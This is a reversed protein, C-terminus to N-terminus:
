FEDLLNRSLVIIHCSQCFLRLLSSEVGIDNLKCQAILLNVWFMFLSPSIEIKLRLRETNASRKRHLRDTEQLVLSEM